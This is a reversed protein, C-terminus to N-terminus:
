LKLDGNRGFTNPKSKFIGDKDIKANFSLKEGNAELQKTM